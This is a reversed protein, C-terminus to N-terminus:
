ERIELVGQGHGVPARLGQQREISECNSPQPQVTVTSGEGNGAGDDLQTDLRAALDLGPGDEDDNSSKGAATLNTEIM